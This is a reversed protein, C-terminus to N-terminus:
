NLYADLDKDTLRSTDEGDLQVTPYWQAATRYPNETDNKDYYAQPYHVNENVICDSANLEKSDSNTMKVAVVVFRASDFLDSAASLMLIKDSLLIERGTTYLLRTSLNARFDILSSDSLDAVAYPFIKGNDAAKDTNTYFAGIVKYEGNEYLTNFTIVPNQACSEPTAYMSELSGFYTDSAYLVVNRSQPQIDARWDMYVSGEDNKRAKADRTAYYSNDEGQYVDFDVATDGISLHGVFDQNAAYQEIYDLQMGDSIQIGYKAETDTIKKQNAARIGLVIATILIAAALVCAIIKFPLSRLFAKIKARRNRHDAAEEEKSKKKRPLRVKKAKEKKAKKDATQTSQPSQEEEAEAVISPAPPALEDPEENRRKANFDNLISDIESHSNQKDKNEM